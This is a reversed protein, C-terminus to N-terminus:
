ADLARKRFIHPPGLFPCGDDLLKVDVQHFADFGGFGPVTDGLRKNFEFKVVERGGRYLPHAGFGYFSVKMLKQQLPPLSARLWHPEDADAYPQQLITLM